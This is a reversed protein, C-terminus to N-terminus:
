PSTARERELLGAVEASVLEVALEPDEVGGTVVAELAALAREFAARARAAGVRAAVPRLARGRWAEMRPPVQGGPRAFEWLLGCETALAYTLPAGAKRDVGFFERAFALAEGTRGEVLAGAYKFAKPDEVHLSERQLDALSIAKGALALKELDSRVAALEAKSRALMAVVAPAAKAGLQTLTEQVFRTRASENATTDIRLASRGALAGFPQPRKSSSPLLDSLVLTNGQPVRQAIEWLAARQAAKLSHADTVLVVRREALFPMAAIAEGVRNVDELQADAFRELNMERMQPDLLRDLLVEIARDALVRETGEVIVLREPLPAQDIFDYFKM